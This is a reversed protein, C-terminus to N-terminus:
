EDDDTFYDETALESALELHATFGMPASQPEQTLEITPTPLALAISAALRTLEKIQRVTVEVGQTKIVIDGITVTVKV